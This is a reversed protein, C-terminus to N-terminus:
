SVRRPGLLASVMQDSLMEAEAEINERASAIKRDTELQAKSRIDDIEQKTQNLLSTVSQRGATEIEDRIQLATDRAEAEQSRIQAAIKDFAEGAATLDEGATEIFFQRETMTKRLPRIMVRNLLVVFILFSVLQIVLTANISILAVNKVVEM